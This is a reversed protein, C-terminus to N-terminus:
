FRNPGISRSSSYGSLNSLNDDNDSENEKANEFNGSKVYLVECTKIEQMM